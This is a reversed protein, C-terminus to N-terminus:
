TETKKLTKPATFTFMAGGLASQGCCIDGSHMIAIRKVIALGLGYGGLKKNRSSEVRTFANFITQWQAEPVGEGDDEVAIQYHNGQSTCTVLLRTATYRLGNNILNQLLRKLYTPYAHVDDTLTCRIEISKEVHGTLAQVKIDELLMNISVNRLESSAPSQALANVELQHYLLIEDVLTNLEAIDNRMGALQAQPEPADYKEDLIGLRFKMRTIPTRLEHSVAQIIHKQEALLAEIRLAMNNFALAVRAFADDGMVEIRAGFGGAGIQRMAQAMHTLRREVRYVMFYAIAATVCFAFLLLAIVLPMPTNDFRPIPGLVLAQQQGSYPAYVYMLEDDTLNATGVVVVDGKLLRKRQQSDLVSDTLKIRDINFAFLQRIETLRTDHEAKPSRGLENLVLLAAVRLQKEALSTITTSLRKTPQGPVGGTVDFTDGGEGLQFRAQTEIPEELASLSLTLGSLRSVINLWERQKEGQHRALGQQILAFTGGFVTQNYAELRYDNVQSFLVYCGLGSFLISSIIGIYIRFFM